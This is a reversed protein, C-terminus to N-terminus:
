NQLINILGIKKNSNIKKKQWFISFFSIFPFFSFLPFIFKKEFKSRQKTINVKLINRIQYFIRIYVLLYTFYNKSYQLLFDLM